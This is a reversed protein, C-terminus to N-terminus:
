QRKMGLWESSAASCLATLVNSKTLVIHPWPLTCPLHLRGDAAALGGVQRLRTAMGPLDRRAEFREQSNPATAALAQLLTDASFIGYYQLM